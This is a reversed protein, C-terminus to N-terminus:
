CSSFIKKVLTFCTKGNSCLFFFEHVLSSCMGEAITLNFDEQPSMFGGTTANTLVSGDSWAPYGPAISNFSASYPMATQPPVSVPLQGLFM